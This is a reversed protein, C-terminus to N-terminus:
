QEIHTAKVASATQLLHYCAWDVLSMGAARAADEFIPKLHGPLTLTFNSPNPKTKQNASEAVAQQESWLDCEAGRTDGDKGLFSLIGFKNCYFSHNDEVSERSYHQCNWCSRKQPTTEESEHNAAPVKKLRKLAADVSQENLVKRLNLVEEIDGHFKLEDIAEVVKKGKAYTRGSGLGVLKAVRDRSKGKSAQPFNEVLTENTEKGLKQNTMAAALQQRQKAKAREV